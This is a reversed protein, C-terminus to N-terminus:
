LEGNAIRRMMEESATIVADIRRNKKRSELTANSYRPKDPGYGKTTIRSVDMGREKAYNAFTNAREESLTMNRRRPGYNDTHGEVVMNTYAYKSLVETLNTISERATPTLDASDFSFYVGPDFTVQVGNGLRVIEVDKVFQKLDKALADMLETVRRDIDEQTLTKPSKPETTESPPPTEVVPQQAPPTNKRKGVYSDFGDPAKKNKKSSKCAPAFIFVSAALFYAIFRRITIKM